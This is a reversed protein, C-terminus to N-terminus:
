KQTHIAQHRILNSLFSFTKSCKSCKFRREGTHVSQHVKLNASTSFQKSCHPCPFPREGTHVMQHRKLSSFQGFSKGCQGCQHPKEGTHIRKHIRLQCQHAFRRLCFTCVFPLSHQSQQLQLQPQQQQHSRLTDTLGSDLYQSKGSFHAGDTQGMESWSNHVQQSNVKALPAPPENFTLTQNRGDYAESPTAKNQVFMLPQYQSTVSSPPMVEDVGVSQDKGNSLLGRSEDALGLTGSSVLAIDREFRQRSRSIDDQLINPVAPFGSSATTLTPHCPLFSGEGSEVAYMFCSPKVDDAPNSEMVVSPPKNKESVASLSDQMKLIKEKSDEPSGRNKLGEMVNSLAPQDGSNDKSAASPSTTVASTNTRGQGEPSTIAVPPVESVPVEVETAGEVKVILLEAEAEAPESKTTTVVEQDPDQDVIISQNKQVSIQTTPARNLFRTRVQVSAGSSERNQRNLRIAPFRGYGASGDAGKLREARYRSVHLELLKIRNENEKQSRSVELQVVTYGDDVVKCIEAVAANALVEMISAIQSHFDAAAASM